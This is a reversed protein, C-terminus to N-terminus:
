RYLGPAVKLRSRSFLHRIRTNDSEQRLPEPRNRGASPARIRVSVNYYNLHDLLKPEADLIRACAM